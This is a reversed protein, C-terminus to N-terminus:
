MLAMKIAVDKDGSTWLTVLKEAPEIVKEM